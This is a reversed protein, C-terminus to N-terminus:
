ILFADGDAPTILRFNLLEDRWEEQFQAVTLSQWAQLCRGIYSIMHLGLEPYVGAIHSSAQLQPHHWDFSPHPEHEWTDIFAQRGAKALFLALAEETVLGGRASNILIVQNQLQGVIAASLQHQSTPNLSCALIIADIKPWPIQEWALVQAPLGRAIAAQIQTTKFPDYIYLHAGFTALLAAVKQGIHGFGSLFIHQGAILHRGPFQRTPDWATQQPLPSTGALLAAMIYETVAQARLQHGLVIPFHAAQVYAPSFNDYGSNPHILLKIQALPIQRLLDEPTNSNTLVILDQGVIAAAGAARDQPWVLYRLGQREAMAQEQAPYDAPLYASYNLRVVIPPM